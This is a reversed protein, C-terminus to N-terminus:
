FKYSIGIAIVPYYRYDDLDDELDRREKELESQFTPDSAIPGNAKLSIDGDGQFVVGVDCTFTWRANGGLVNGWGIGVYPAFTDFDLKGSLDGLEGPTYTSDGIKYGSLSRAELDAKNKNIVLGSSIRFGGTKFPHWDFLIPFSLLRVDLDYGIDDATTKMGFNFANIGLRANLRPLIGVTADAGIGMTGPSIGIAFEGTDAFAQPLVTVILILTILWIKAMGIGKM